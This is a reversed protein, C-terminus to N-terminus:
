KPMILLINTGVKLRTFKAPLFTTIAWFQIFVSTNIRDSNGVKISNIRLTDIKSVVQCKPNFYYDGM